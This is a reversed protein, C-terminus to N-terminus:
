PCLEISVCFFSHSISVHSLAAPITWFGFSHRSAFTLIVLYYLFCCKLFSCFSCCCYQSTFICTYACSPSEEAWLPQLASNWHTHELPIYTLRYFEPSTLSKFAKFVLSTPKLKKKEQPCHPALLVKIHSVQMEHRWNYFSLKWMSLSDSTFYSPFFIYSMKISCM